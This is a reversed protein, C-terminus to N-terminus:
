PTQATPITDSDWESPFLLTVGAFPGELSLCPSFSPWSHFFARTNLIWQVSDWHLLPGLAWPLPVKWAWDLGSHNIRLQIHVRSLSKDLPTNHGWKHHSLPFVKIFVDSISSSFTLLVNTTGHNLIWRATCPSPNLGQGPFYSGVHWSAVLAVCSSSFSLVAALSGM